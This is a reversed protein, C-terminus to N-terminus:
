TPHVTFGSAIGDSMLKAHHSYTSRYMDATLRSVYVGKMLHRSMCGKQSRQRYQLFTDGRHGITESLTDNSIGVFTSSQSNKPHM